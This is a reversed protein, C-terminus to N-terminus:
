RAPKNWRRGKGRGATQRHTQDKHEGGPFVPFGPMQVDQAGDAEPKVVATKLGRKGGGAVGCGAHSYEGPRFM